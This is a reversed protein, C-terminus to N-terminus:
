NKKNKDISIKPCLWTSNNVSKEKTWCNTPTALRYNVSSYDVPKLSYPEEKIVKQTKKGFISQNIM